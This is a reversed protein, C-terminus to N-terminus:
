SNVFDSDQYHLFEEELQKGLEIKVQNQFDSISMNEESSELREAIETLSRVLFHEMYKEVHFDEELLLFFNQMELDLKEFLEKTM